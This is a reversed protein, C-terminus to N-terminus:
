AWCRPETWRPCDGCKLCGAFDWCHQTRSDAAVPRVAVTSCKTSNRPAKTQAGAFRTDAVEVFSCSSTTRSKEKANRSENRRSRSPVRFKASEKQDRKAAASRRHM